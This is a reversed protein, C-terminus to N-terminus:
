RDCKAWIPRERFPPPRRPPVLPNSSMAIVALHAVAFVSFEVVKPMHLLLFSSLWTNLEVNCVLCFNLLMQQCFAVVIVNFCELCGTPKASSKLPVWSILGIITALYIKKFM